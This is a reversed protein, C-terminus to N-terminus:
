IPCKKEITERSKSPNSSCACLFCLVHFIRIYPDLLSWRIWTLTLTHSMSKLILSFFCNCLCVNQILTGYKACLVSDFLFHEINNWSILHSYDGGLDQRFISPFQCSFAGDSKKSIHSSLNRSQLTSPNLWDYLLMHSTLQSGGIVM